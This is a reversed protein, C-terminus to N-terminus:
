KGLLRQRADRLRLLPNNPDILIQYFVLAMEDGTQEGYRVRKPPTNPNHINDASNDYTFQMRVKTGRPILLPQVYQYQEQWNWDWDDIWILPKETGDPLTATVKVDRCLLHAHPIIGSLEVDAPVTFTDDIVYHKEGPAIDIRQSGHPLSILLKQPPKKAFYLGVVSQEREIKGSPHFHTHLILDAGAQVPRAVGDPLFHPM